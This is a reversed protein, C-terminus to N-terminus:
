RLGRQVQLPSYQNIGEVLDLTSPSPSPPPPPPPPPTSYVAVGNAFSFSNKLTIPSPAGPATLSTTWLSAKFGAQYGVMYVTDSSLAMVQVNAAIGSTAATASYTTVSALNSLPATALTYKALSPETGSAYLQTSTVGVGFTGGGNAFLSNTIPSTLAPIAVTWVLSQGSVIGGIYAKSDSIAIGGISAGTTATVAQAVVTGLPNIPVKWIRALTDNDQGSIYAFNSSLAIGGVTSGLGSNSSLQTPTFTGLNSLPATWLIPYYASDVGAIYITDSSIAVGTANANLGSTSITHPVFVSSGTIPFDTTWLTPTTGNKGVIYATTFSVAIAYAQGTGITYETVTSGGVPLTWLIASFGSNNAAGVVCVTEEAAFGFRGYVLVIFISFVLRLMM